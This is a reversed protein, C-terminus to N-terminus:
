GCKQFSKKKHLTINHNRGANPDRSILKIRSKLNERCHLIFGLDAEMKLCCAGEFRRYGVAVSCPTVVWFVEVLVCVKKISIELVLENVRKYITM